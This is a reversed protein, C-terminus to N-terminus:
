NISESHLEKLCNNSKHFDMVALQCVHIHLSAVSALLLWVCADSPCLETKSTFGCIVCHYERVGEWLTGACGHM